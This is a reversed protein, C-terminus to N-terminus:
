LMELNELYMKLQEKSIVGDDSTYCFMTKTDFETSYIPNTPPSIVYHTKNITRARLSEIETVLTEAIKEGKRLGIVKIPKGYKESFVEALDKVKFSPLIPIWLDGTAGHNIATNILDVSQNLTMLFRTTDPNTLTFEKENKGQHHFLPLISGNSMLINGYRVCLFKIDNRVLPQSTIIRESLLKCAGYSLEPAAAKDTSVFLVTELMPTKVNNLAEVVNLTGLTNTAISEKVYTECNVIHKLAYCCILIQPNITRLIEEIRTKDRVDGILFKLNPKNFQNTLQWQRTEGRSMVFIENDAIYRSILMEGLSGSGGLILIRKNKLEKNLIM